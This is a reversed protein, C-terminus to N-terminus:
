HLKKLNKFHLKAVHGLAERGHAQVFQLVAQDVIPAAGKPLKLGFQRSLKDLYSLFAARALVSAAAVALHREGRHTQLLNVAQGKKMLSNQILSADGFQDSVVTACDDQDLVNEVARAHGWALLKNLNRIRAYLENYKLPSILVISNPATAKIDEALSLARRDTIRKSELINLSDLASKNSRDLLVAAIVLPGFLDGKGSEDTGIYEDPVVIESM